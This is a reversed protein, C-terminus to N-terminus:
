AVKRAFGNQKIHNIFHQTNNIKKFLDNKESENRVDVLMMQLVEMKMEQAEVMKIETSTLKM